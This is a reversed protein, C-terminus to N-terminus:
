EPGAGRRDKLRVLYRFEVGPACLPCNPDRRQVDTVNAPYEHPPSTCEGVTPPPLDRLDRHLRPCDYEDDDGQAHPPGHLQGEGISLGLAEVPANTRQRLEAGGRHPSGTGPGAADDERRDGGVAGSGDAARLDELADGDECFRTGEGLEYAAVHVAERLRLRPLGGVERDRVGRRVQKSGVGGFSTFFGCLGSRKGLSPPTCKSQNASKASPKMLRKLAPPSNKTPSRVPITGSSRTRRVATLASMRSM